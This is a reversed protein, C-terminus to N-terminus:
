IVQGMAPDTFSEKGIEIHGAYRQEFTNNGEIKVAFDYWAHSKSFDLAVSVSKGKTVEVIKKGTKYSLDEIVFRLNQVENNKLILVGNGTFTNKVLQNNQYTLATEVNTQVNNLKFSRFFGNPGYVEIQVNKNAFDALSWTDKLTDGAKVAYNRTSIEDLGNQTYRTYVVFAAGASKTGFAKNEASLTLEFTKKDNSFYAEAYLEYPLACAKRIGKEQKPMLASANGLTNAEKIEEATLAKFNSPVNKFKAKHVSELFPEKAVFTPLAIKEGNYPKFVSTLDGCVTRRWESINEEKINKKTKYSLFKELFQLISTHDFIESCVNGGRSWPSAILLPVRFGLGIAGDRTDKEPNKYYDRKKEHAMNVQEVSVDIGASVKGTDPKQHHPPLFPPIHDFYGDNEDYALIFITKKWVEPNQTLIDMTESLYWAGYWPAGPHDSFNEPAVLWTVAPLQNNAVDQRFQHLVDGKPVELKRATGNDTYELSTLEHFHPDNRNNTFAKKHINKQFTSLKEFNEPTYNIIDEQAIKLYSKKQVLAREAKKLAESGAALTPIEASLKEIEKPLFKVVEQIYRYYEPSFKVQYQEFWEIPNDTFNALWADGEGELGTPLSIENQYIKWSIGNEELREPFTKWKAWKGYDVDENKVNAKSDFAQKERITGTWLYLRNPTTGTLSSCFNQDCVTFADALAYYFPIDERNYYGLTLPMDKYEKHGSQKVHLWKDNKGGNLADVQNEWSHPLSSMWTANSDRLNLRFPAFTEGKENQQLWVKNRSPLTIARPDNFGRVGQLTGFCHDFSRNEQMLIVVHEADWFTSGEAPNIAMAKQISAPLMGLFGAGSALVSAKKIFERRSEM